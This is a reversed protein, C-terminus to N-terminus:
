ALEGLLSDSMMFSTKMRAARRKAECQGHGAVIHDLSICGGALTEDLVTLVAPLVLIATGLFHRHLLRIARHLNHLVAGVAGRKYSAALGRKTM